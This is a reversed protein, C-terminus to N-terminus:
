FIGANSQCAPVSSNFCLAIASIFLMCILTHRQTSVQHHLLRQCIGLEPASPCLWLRPYPAFICGAFALKMKVLEWCTHHNISNSQLRKVNDAKLSLSLLHKIHYNPASGAAAISFVSVTCAMFSQRPCSITLGLCFCHQRIVVAIHM